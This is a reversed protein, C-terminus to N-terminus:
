GSYLVVNISDDKNADVDRRWRLRGHQSVPSPSAKLRGERSLIENAHKSNSGGGIDMNLFVCRDAKAGRSLYHGRRNLDHTLVRHGMFMMMIIIFM